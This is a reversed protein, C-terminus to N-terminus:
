TTSTCAPPAPPDSLNLTFLPRSGAQGPDELLTSPQPETPTDGQRSSVQACPQPRPGLGEESTPSPNAPLSACSDLNAGESTDLSAASPRLGLAPPPSPVAGPSVCGAGAGIGNVRAGHRDERRARARARDTGTRRRDRRSQAPLQVASGSRAPARQAASRPGSHRAHGRTGVWWPALGGRSPQPQTAIPIYGGCARARLRGAARLRRASGHTGTGTIGVWSAGAGSGPSRGGASSADAGGRGARGKRRTPAQRAAPASTATRAEATSVTTM